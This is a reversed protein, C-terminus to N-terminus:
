KVLVLKRFNKYNTLIITVLKGLSISVILEGKFNNNELTISYKEKKIKKFYKYSLNRIEMLLMHSAFILYPNNDEDMSLEINIKEVVLESLIKFVLPNTIKKIIKFLDKLGKPKASFFKTLDIQLNLFNSIIMKLKIAEDNDKKIKLKIQVFWLSIFLISIGLLVYKM